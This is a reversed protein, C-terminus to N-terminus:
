SKSSLTFYNSSSFYIGPFVLNVLDAPDPTELDEDQYENAESNTLIRRDEDRSDFTSRGRQFIHFGTPIIIGLIHFFLFHEM